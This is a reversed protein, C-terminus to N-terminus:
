VTMGRRLDNVDTSAGPNAAAQLELMKMMANKDGHFYPHKQNGMIEQIKANAEDPTMRGQESADNNALNTGEGQGIAESIGYIWQLVDAPLNKEKMAEIMYEPAGTKQAILLAQNMREDTALGWEKYLGELGEEQAKTAAESEAVDQALIETIQAKFQDKSLGAKHAIEQFATVRDSNIDTGDADPSGYDKAEAPMGMTRYFERTQEPSDLDPKLMVNPVKDLLKNVFETRQEDGADEGPIRISAGQYSVLETYSKALAPIDSFNALSASGKLDEPLSDRWNAVVSGESGESGEAAEEKLKYKLKYM